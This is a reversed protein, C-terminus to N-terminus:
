LTVLFVLVYATALAFEENREPLGCSATSAKSLASLNFGSWAAAM